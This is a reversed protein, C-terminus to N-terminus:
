TEDDRQRSKPETARLAREFLQAVNGDPDSFTLVRGHDGMDRISVIRGGHVTIAQSHSQLDGVEFVPVAGIQGAVGEDPSAIALPSEGAKLQVWRDADRFRMSLGLARQWFECVRDLDRTVFHINQLRIVSLVVVGLWYLSHLV